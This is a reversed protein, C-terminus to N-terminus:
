ASNEAKKKNHKMLIDRIEELIQERHEREESNLTLHNVIHRINKLDTYERPM